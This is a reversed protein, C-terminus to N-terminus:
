QLKVKYSNCIPTYYKMKLKDNTNAYKYRFCIQSEPVDILSQANIETTTINPPLANSIDVLPYYSISYVIDPAYAKNNIHIKTEQLTDVIEFDTSNLTVTNGNKSATIIFGDKSLIFSRQPLQIEQSGSASLSNYTASLTGQSPTLATNKIALISHEPSSAPLIDYTDRSNRVKANNLTLALSDVLTDSYPIYFLQITGYIGDVPTELISTDIIDINKTNIIYHVMPGYSIHKGYYMEISLPVQSLYYKGLNNISTFEETPITGITLNTKDISVFVKISTIDSDARVGMKDNYLILTEADHVRVLKTGNNASIYYNVNGTDESNFAVSSITKNNTFPISIYQGANDYITKKVSIQRIGILYKYRIGFGTNTGTYTSQSFRLRVFRTFEPSFRIYHDSKNIEYTYNVKTYTEGDSSVEVMEINPYQTNNDTYLQLYLGNVIDLSETKLTVTLFLDSLNLVNSIKEYQFLSSSDGSLISSINNNEVPSISGNSDSEIIIGTVTVTSTNVIPLTLDGNQIDINLNKDLPFKSDFYDQSLFSEIIINSKNNSTIAKASNFISLFDNLVMDESISSEGYLMNIKDFINSVQSHVMSINAGISIGQSALDIFNVLKNKYINM